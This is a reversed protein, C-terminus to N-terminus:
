RLIAIRAKLFLFQFGFHHLKSTPSTNVPGPAAPSVKQALISELRYRCAIAFYPAARMIAAGAKLVAHVGLPNHELDCLHHLGTPPSSPTLEFDVQQGPPKGGRPSASSM